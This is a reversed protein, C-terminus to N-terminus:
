ARGQDEQHLQAECLELCPYTSGLVDNHRVDLVNGVEDKAGKGSEENAVGDRVALGRQDVVDLRPLEEEVQDELLEGVEHEKIQERPQHGTIHLFVPHHHNM